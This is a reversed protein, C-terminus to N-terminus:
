PSADKSTATVDVTPARFALRGIGYGIYGIVCNVYLRWALTSWLSLGARSPIQWVFHAIFAGIVSVAFSLALPWFPNARSRGVAVCVVAFLIIVPDRFSGLCYGLTAAVFMEVNM